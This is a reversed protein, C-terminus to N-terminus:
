PTNSVTMASIEIASRSCTTETKLNNYYTIQRGSALLELSMSFLKDFLSQSMNTTDTLDAVLVTGSKLFIQLTNTNCMYVSSVYDSIAASSQTSFIMLSGAFLGLFCHRIM